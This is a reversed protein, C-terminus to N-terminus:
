YVGRGSRGAHAPKRLEELLDEIREELAAQSRELSAVRRALDTDRGAAAVVRNAGASDGPHLGQATEVFGLAARVVPSLADPREAHRLVFGPAEDDLQSNVGFIWAKATEDGFAEVLLRVAQYAHRLRFNAANRPTVKGAAWQGVTKADKLGSVYATLRQGLHEQLYATIEAISSRTAEIEIQEPLIAPAITPM